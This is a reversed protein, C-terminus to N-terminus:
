MIADNGTVLLDIHTNELHPKCPHDNADSELHLYNSQTYYCFPCFFALIISYKAHRHCRPLVHRIEIIPCILQNFDGNTFVGMALLVFWACCHLCFLYGLNELMSRPAPKFTSDLNYYLTLPVFYESSIRLNTYYRHKAIYL